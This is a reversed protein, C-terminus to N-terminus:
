WITCEPPTQLMPRAGAPAVRADLRARATNLDRARMIGMAERASLTMVDGHAPRPAPVVAAARYIIRARVSM